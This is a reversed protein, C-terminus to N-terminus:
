PTTSLVEQFHDFDDNKNYVKVPSPFFVTCHDSGVMGDTVEVDVTRAPLDTHM